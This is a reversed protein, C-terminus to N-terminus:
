LLEAFKPHNQINRNRVNHKEYRHMATASNDAQQQTIQVM